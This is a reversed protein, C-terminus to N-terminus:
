ADLVVSDSPPLNAAGREAAADALKLERAIWDTDIPRLFGPTTTPKKPGRIADAAKRLVGDLM